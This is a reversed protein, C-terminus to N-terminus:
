YMGKKRYHGLRDALNVHGKYNYKLWITRKDRDIKSKSLVFLHIPAEEQESLNEKDEIFGEIERIQKALDNIVERLKTLPQYEIFFEIENEKLRSRKITYNLLKM